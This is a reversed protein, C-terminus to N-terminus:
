SKRGIVSRKERRRRSTCSANLICNQLDKLLLNLTMKGGGYWWAKGSSTRGKAACSPRHTTQGYPAPCMGLSPPSTLHTQTREDARKHERGTSSKGNARRRRRVQRHRRGRNGDRWHRRRRGRNKAPGAQIDAAM